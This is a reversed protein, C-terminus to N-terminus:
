IVSNIVHNKIGEKKLNMVANKTPCFLVTSIKDTIVRNIEEPM